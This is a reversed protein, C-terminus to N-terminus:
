AALNEWGDHGPESRERALEKCGRSPGTWQQPHAEEEDMEGSIFSLLKGHRIGGM